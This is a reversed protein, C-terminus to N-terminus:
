SKIGGEQSGGLAKELDHGIKRLSYQETVSQRGAAGFRERLEPSARLALLHRELEGEKELDVIIGTSDHEVQELMGCDNNVLM